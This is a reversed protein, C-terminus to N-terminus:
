ASIANKFEKFYCDRASDKALERNANEGHIEDAVRKVGDKTM